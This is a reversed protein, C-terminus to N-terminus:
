SILSAHCGPFTSFFGALREEKKCTEGIEERSSISIVIEVIMDIRRDELQKERSEDKPEGFVGLENEM